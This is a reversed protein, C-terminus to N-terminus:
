KASVRIRRHLDHDPRDRHHDRRRRRAPVSQGPHALARLGCARLEGILKGAEELNRAQRRDGFMDAALAVHGLEALMRARAMAFEGSEGHARLV